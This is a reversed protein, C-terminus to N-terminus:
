VQRALQKDSLSKLDDLNLAENWDFLQVSLDSQIAINDPKIDRHIINQATLLSLCVGAFTYIQWIAAEFPFLV